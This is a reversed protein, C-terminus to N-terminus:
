KAFRIHRLNKEYRLGLNRCSENIERMKADSFYAIKSHLLESGLHRKIALGEADLDAVIDKDKFQKYHADAYRLLWRKIRDSLEKSIQLDEHKIYGGHAADRIGTGSLMGDVILYLM